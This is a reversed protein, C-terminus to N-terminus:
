KPGWVIGVGHCVHCDRWPVGAADKFWNNTLMEYVGQATDYIREKGTGCCNPCHYPKGYWNAKNELRKRNLTENESKLQEIQELLEKKKKSWNERDNDKIQKCAALAKSLNEIELKQNKIKTKLHSNEQELKFVENAFHNANHAVTEKDRNLRENDAQLQKIISLNCNCVSLSSQLLECWYNHGSNKTLKNLEPRDRLKFNLQEITELLQKKEAKLKDIAIILENLGEINCEITKKDENM